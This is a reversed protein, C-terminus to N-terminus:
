RRGSLDLRDLNLFNSGMELRITNYGRALTVGELVATNWAGWGSTSPFPQDAAVQTGNVLIRRTADGAGAAYRFRLEHTGASAVNVHFTLTQGSTNWGALYGRGSFGAQSSESDIGAPRANEAEYVGDEPQLGTNGDPQVIQLTSVAAAATLSQLYTSPAPASWDPGRPQRVHPPAAV